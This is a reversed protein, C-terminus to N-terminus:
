IHILSLEMVKCVCSTLAIPRYNTPDSTVGSCALSQSVTRWSGPTLSRGVGGGGNAAILRRTWLIRKSSILKNTMRM